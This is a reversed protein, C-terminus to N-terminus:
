SYSRIDVSFVILITYFLVPGRIRGAVWVPCWVWGTGVDGRLGM